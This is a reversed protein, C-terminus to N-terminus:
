TPVKGYAAYIFGLDGFRREFISFDSLLGENADPPLVRM